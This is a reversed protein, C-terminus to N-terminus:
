KISIFYLKRKGTYVSDFFIKMGDTSWKPHLDCRTEGYYKLSEYFEGLVELKNEGINYLNLMRMLSKDPYTDFIMKGNVIGPHGDGFKDIVGEGFPKIDLSNIDIIYFRDGKDYRRMYSVIKNNGYWCCHSVMDHDSLLVLNKGEKDAMILRDFKRGDIFFRHLFIIREGDPSIMIHNVKHTANNNLLLKKPCFDNLTKLSIILEQTSNELNVKFVGDNDMEFINIEKQLHNRYGYDPRMIALRDFNVTYGYNKFVDYIAYPIVSKIENMRADVICSQYNGTNDLRNFIFEYDSIWQLKSGQQWNYTKSEFRNIIKKNIYDYLIIFVPIEPNPLKLTPYDSSQYILFENTKNIPSKDYYGFFTEREGDEHRM